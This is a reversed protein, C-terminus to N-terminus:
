DGPGECLAPYANGCGADAWSWANNNLNYRGCAELPDTGQSPETDRWIAFSGNAATGGNPVSGGSWFQLTDTVWRWTDAVEADSAGIWADNLGSPELIAVVENHDLQSRITVLDWGSGRGMCANRADNFNRFGTDLFYCSGNAGSVEGNSCSVQPIDWKTRLYGTVALREAQSLRRSYLIVEGIDGDFSCQAGGCGLSGGGVSLPVDPAVPPSTPGSQYALAGGRSSTFLSTTVSDFGFHWLYSQNAVPAPNFKVNSWTCGGGTCAAMAALAADFPHNYNVEFNEGNGLLMSKDGIAPAAGAEWVIFGEVAAFAMEGAALLFDNSGDFRVVDLGNMGSAVTPRQGATDNAVDNHQGSRDAWYRVGPATAMSASYDADLWLVLGASVAGPRTVSSTSFNWQTPSTTGPYSAAGGVQQLAGADVLVYYDTSGDLLADLDITADTGDYTV